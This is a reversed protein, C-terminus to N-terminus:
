SNHPEAMKIDSQLKNVTELFFPDALIRQIKRRAHLVDVHDRGGFARGIDKPSLDTLVSALYMALQRPLAISEEQQQGKFDKAAVSHKRAVLRQITEM